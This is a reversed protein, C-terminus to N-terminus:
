DSEVLGFNELKALATLFMKAQKPRPRELWGNQALADLKRIVGIHYESLADRNAEAAAHVAAFREPAYSMVESINNQDEPDPPEEGGNLRGKAEVPEPIEGPLPLDSLERWMEEFLGEKKCVESGLRGAGVKDVYKSVSRAFWKLVSQMEGSLEQNRWITKWDLEGGVRRSLYAVTYTAINIQNSTFAEKDGKVIKHATRYVIVKGITEKYRDSTVEKEAAADTKIPKVHYSQAFANFCKQNGRAVTAAQRDWAMMYKALDTKTIVREKPHRDQWRRRSASSDELMLKVAYANRMREYFWFAGDRPDVELEALQELRRHFAENAGLDAMEVKNQSNSYLSISKVIEAEDGRRNLRIIKAQIFVNELPDDKKLDRRAKFLSATTQGGNVIQVGKLWKIETAGNGLEETELEDVVMVIGNNYPLFFRRREPSKLTEQIGKNVGGKASLFSRVNLELLRNDYAEYLDALFRGPLVALFTTVDDTTSPTRLAILREPGMMEKVNVEIESRSATGRSWRFLRELDVVETFVKGDATKEQRGRERKIQNTVIFYKIARCKDSNVFDRLTQLHPVALDDALSSLDFVPDRLLDVLGSLRTREREIIRQELIVPDVATSDYHFGFLHLAGEEVLLSYVPLAVERLPRGIKRRFFVSQPEETWGESELIELAYQAFGLLEASGERTQDEAVLQAAREPISVGCLVKYFDDRTKLETM